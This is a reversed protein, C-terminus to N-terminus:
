SSNASLLLPVVGDPTGFGASPSWALPARRAKPDALVQCAVARRVRPSDDGLARAAGAWDGLELLALAALTRREAGKAALDARLAPKVAGKGTHALAARAVAGVPTASDSALRELERSGDADLARAAAMRWLALVRTAPAQHKRAALIAARAAVDAWPAAEIALLRTEVNAGEIARVLAASALPSGPARAELAIAALVSPEGSGQALDELHVQGGAGFSAPMSWALVIEGRESPAASADTDVLAQVAAEGGIRGLARIALTRAGPDPDLRAAEALAGTDAPDRGALAASLAAQRVSADGHLMFARRREGARVGVAQRARVAQGTADAWRPRPASLGADILALAAPASFESSGNAVDELVPRIHRACPAVDPFSDDSASLTALERELVASALEELGSSGLRDLKEAREISAKLAPLDGRLATRAPASTCAGLGLVAGLL